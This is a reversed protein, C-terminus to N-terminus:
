LDAGSPHLPVKVLRHGNASVYLATVVDGKYQVASPLSFGFTHEYARSIVTDALIIRPGSPSACRVNVGNEQPTHGLVMRRARLKSLTQAVRACVAEEPGEAFFRNWFPGLGGFLKHRFPVREVDLLEKVKANLIGLPDSSNGEAWQDDLM